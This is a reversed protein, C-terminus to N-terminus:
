GSLIKQPNLLDPEYTHSGRRSSEDAIGILKKVVSRWKQGTEVMVLEDMEPRGKPLHFKVLMYHTPFYHWPMYNGSWIAHGPWKVVGYDGSRHILIIGKPGWDVGLTPIRKGVEIVTGDRLDHRIGM